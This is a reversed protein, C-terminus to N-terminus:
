GLLATILQDADALLAALLCALDEPTVANAGIYLKLKPETGSPRVCLWAGGQLSYRLVNVGTIACPYSEGTQDLCVGTLMDEATIVPIGGFTQPPNERLGKMAGAIRELGEKGALSYNKVAEEYFGCLSGIEYLVGWLTKGQRRYYACAEAALLASSVADKDRSDGGALFGYSEEFGFLFTGEGSRESEKIRESIFRFGTPVDACTVGFRRCIADALRTSVLSKVVFGDKPLTGKEGMSSLLYYLLLCGIKNGSLVRFKGEEDRVALGLRDSDPDTALIADAGIGDALAMALTFANPAEPNPAKVTPFVPAPMAQEKVVNLGTIGARALLARVPVNGSGHLPTYVLNLEGGMEEFLGPHQLLALASQYYAEDDQQTLMTLLGRHLAEERGLSLGGFYSQEKMRAYIAGAQQPSAQGGDAWYVKYGNYEPPNHSATIVVGAICGLHRVMASLMPVPRLSDYLYARVGKACLTLATELAFEASCRRSDYAIAVGRKAGDSFTLIYEALGLTARRVVCPNMRNTGAGLIGRLGATGFELETYFREEIQKPDNQIALLEERLAPDLSPQNLWRLYEQTDIM